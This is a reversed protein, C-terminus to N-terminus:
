CITHKKTRDWNKDRDMAYYRGIISAIKGINLKKITKETKKVMPLASKEPMDRGDLTLHIYVRDFNEKKCLELLSLMHHFDAHVGESSFLGNLHLNSNHKKCHEIAKLLIKNKFFNKNKIEQNILEYPQWVIRGAGITLHGVESGGQVGQPNGVDNGTCKIVTTPFNEKYFDHNPTKAHFLANGKNHKGHGWGDRIILLVKNKPNM